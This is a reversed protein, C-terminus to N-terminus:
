ATQSDSDPITERETLRKVELLTYGMEYLETLVGLLCSQDAVAGSLTTTQRMEKARSARVRMGALVSALSASIRGQIRIRYTAPADFLPCGGSTEM